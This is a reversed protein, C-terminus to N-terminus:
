ILAMKCRLISCASDALWLRQDINAARTVIAQVTWSNPIYLILRELFIPQVWIRWYVACQPISLFNRPFPSSAWQPLLHVESRWNSIISSQLSFFLSFTIIISIKGAVCLRSTHDTYSVNFSTIVLWENHESQRVTLYSRCYVPAKM